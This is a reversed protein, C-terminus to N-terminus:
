RKPWRKRTYKEWPLCLRKEWFASFLCHLHCTHKGPLSPVLVHCLYYIGAIKHKKQEAEPKLDIKTKKGVQKGKGHHQMHLLWCALDLIHTESGWPDMGADSKIKKPGKPTPLSPLAPALLSSSGKTGEATCCLWDSCWSSCCSGGAARQLHGVESSTKPIGTMQSIQSTLWHWGEWIIHLPAPFAGERQLRKLWQCNQHLFCGDADSTPPLQATETLNWHEQNTSKATTTTNMNEGLFGVPDSTQRQTPKWPCLTYSVGLATFGSTQEGPVALTKLLWFAAKPSLNNGQSICTCFKQKRTHM